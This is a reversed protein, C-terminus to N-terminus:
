QGQSNGKVFFVASALIMVFAFIMVFIWSIFSVLAFMIWLVFIGMSFIIPNKIGYKAFYIILAITSALVIITKVFTSGGGTLTDTIFTIDSASLTGEGEGETPAESEGIIQEQSAPLNCTEGPTGNIVTVVYSYSNSYDDINGSDQLYVTASRSGTQGYYCDIVPNNLSFSGNYMTINTGCTSSLRESQQLNDNTYHCTSNAYALCDEASFSITTGTCIPMSYPSLGFNRGNLVPLEDEFSAGYITTTGNRTFIMDLSLDNNLDVLSIKDSISSSSRVAYSYDEKIIGQYWVIDDYSTPDGNIMPASLINNSSSSSFVGGSGSFLTGNDYITVGNVDYCKLGRFLSLGSNDGSIMMCIYNLSGQKLIIPTSPIAGSYGTACTGSGVGTRITTTVPFGSKGSGTATYVDLNSFFNDGITHTCTGYGVILENYGGDLNYILPQTVAGYEGNIYIITLDDIYGDGDFTTDLSLTNTNVVCVGFVGDDDIDCAFVLNDTNLTTLPSLAPAGLPSMKKINLSNYSNSNNNFKWLHTKKTGVNIDCMVYCNGDHCKIGSYEACSTNGTFNYINNLNTDSLDVIQILDDLGVFAVSTSSYLSPQSALNTGIIKEFKLNCNYDYVRITSSSFILFEKNGDSDFDDSLIQYGMGDGITCYTLLTNNFMGFEDHVFGRNSIDDQYEGYSDTYTALVNISNFLITFVGLIVMLYLVRKAFMLRQSIYYIFTVMTVMVSSKIFIASMVGFSFLKNVMPNVENFRNKYIMLGDVLIFVLFMIFLKTRSINCYFSKLNDASFFMMIKTLNM